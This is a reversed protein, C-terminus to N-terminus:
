WRPGIMMPIQPFALFMCLGLRGDDDNSIAKPSKKGKVKVHKQLNKQPRRIVVQKVVEEFKEVDQTLEVKDLGKLRQCLMGVDILARDNPTAGLM